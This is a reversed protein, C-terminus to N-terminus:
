FQHRSYVFRLIIKPLDTLEMKRIPFKNKFFTLIPFLVNIKIYNPM